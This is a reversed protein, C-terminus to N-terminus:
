KSCRRTGDMGSLRVDVRVRSLRSVMGVGSAEHVVEARCASSLYGAGADVGFEFACIAQVAGGARADACVLGAAHPEDGFGASLASGANGGAVRPHAM